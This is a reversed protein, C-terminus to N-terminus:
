GGGDVGFSWDGTDGLTDRATGTAKYTAAPLTAAASIKGSSSVKLDLGGASQAYTVAGHAGVVQLQSTFVRGTTARGSRPAAQLLKAAVVTLDFNWTGSDGLSDRAVGTAKYTGTPM